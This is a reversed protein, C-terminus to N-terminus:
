KIICGVHIIFYDTLGHFTLTILQKNMKEDSKIVKIVKIIVICHTKKLSAM